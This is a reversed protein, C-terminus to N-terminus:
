HPSQAPREALVGSIPRGLAEPPMARGDLRRPPRLGLLAGITAAVDVAVPPPAGAPAAVLLPSGGTVALPVALEGPGGHNGLLGADVADFPDVFQHGPAAVLLLEGTREHALHWDPHRAELPAVGPVPLRALVEAVGPVERALAAVRALTESGEGASTAEPPVEEGYVHEVGGDAVLRVGRIGARELVPGLTITPHPRERPAVRSTFGQDGRV